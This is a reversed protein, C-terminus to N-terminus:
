YGRKNYVVDKTRFENKRKSDKLEQYEDYSLKKKSQFKEFNQKM